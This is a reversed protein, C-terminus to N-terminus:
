ANNKQTYEIAYLIEKAMSQPSYHDVVIKRPITKIEKGDIVEEFVRVWQDYNTPHVFLGANNEKLLEYTSGSTVHVVPKNMAMAKVAGGSGATIKPVTVFVDCAIFYNKLDDDSVFGVFHIRDEVEHKKVLDKLYDEYERSGHGSIYCMFNRKTNVKSIAEIFMDIQYGAILRQSLFLVFKELPINLLRRAEDVSKDQRWYDCDEGFRFKFVHIHNYRRKIKELALPNDNTTLFYDINQLNRHNKKSVLMRHLFRVPNLCREVDPLLLKTNLFNNYIIVAKYISKALKYRFPSPNTSPLIFTVNNRNYDRAYEILQNSYIYDCRKLGRLYKKEQAPFKKKILRDEFEATYIKDARLDVQWVEYDIDDSHKVLEKGILDGWDGFWTGVWSGTTTDWNWKPRPQNSFEEYKPSFTVLYIVKM